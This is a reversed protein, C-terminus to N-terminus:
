KKKCHDEGMKRWAGKEEVETVIVNERPSKVTVTTRSKMAQGMMTGEEAWVVSDGKLGDSTGTWISGANDFGFEILKQKAADYGWYLHVKGGAPMADNKEARFSGSYAFGDVERSIKMEGQTAVQSGPKVPNDMSGTCAWTGEMGKFAEVLAPAPKPPPPPGEARAPLALALVALVVSLHFRSM